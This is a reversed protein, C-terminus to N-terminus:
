GDVEGTVADTRGTTGPDAPVGVLVALAACLIPVGVPLVPVLALCVVAGLGAALRGRSTRLQPWVMAVYAAPFAADLGFTVPDIAGGLLAGLLTALNWCVYVAAGTIWFALRQRRPDDQAVSMATSEDITLQAAVLRRAVSGEIRRGMTLAYVGNRAALVLAGGLASAASGGAAIVSVASLQSAGTFVLLSMVCTQAVSAGAAVAGVGFSVGFAGVALSLTLSAVVVPRLDPDRWLARPAIM